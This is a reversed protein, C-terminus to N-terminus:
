IKKLHKLHTVAYIKRYLEPYSYFGVMQNLKARSLKRKKAITDKRELVIPAIYHEIKDRECRFEEDSCNLAKEKVTMVSAAVGSMMVSDFEPFRIILDRYREIRARAFEVEVRLPWEGLISDDRRIYHYGTYEVHVVRKAREFVKYNFLTDEFIRGVPFCIGEFLEKKYLKNCVIGSINTDIILEYLAKKTSYCKEGKIGTYKTRDSYITEFGCIAIDSDTRSLADTMFRFMDPSIYDDSDIFSLLSGAANALGTNRACSLGGNEQHFVRIRKDTKGLEDCLEGSGDSSGDDILLIELNHYSQKVLSNICKELYNKTNYVPVIVSVLEEM